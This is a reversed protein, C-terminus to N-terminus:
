VVVSKSEFDLVSEGGGRGGTDALQISVVMNQYNQYNGSNQYSGSVFLM